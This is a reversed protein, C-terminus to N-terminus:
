ILIMMMGADGDYRYNKNGVDNTDNKSLTKIKEQM